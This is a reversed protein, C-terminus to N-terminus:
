IANKWYEDWEDNARMERLSLMYSANDTKWWAGPIKLREQVVASNASEIEGSGIPLNAAKAGMYDFQGSRNRLYRHCDESPNSEKGKKGNRWPELEVMIAEIEGAKLRKKQADVWAKQVKDDGNKVCDKAAKALYECTHYYDVLYSGQDAFVRQAQSEIWTAGDSVCHIESQRNLGSKIACSLWQDGADDPEKMTLGYRKDVCGQEYVLCLKAEKWDLKRTKRKDGPAEEDVIVIPVYSGDMEGIFQRSQGICEQCHELSMESLEYICRAHNLAIARVSPEPMSVGYHEKLKRAAKKFSADSAFDVVRRQLTLSYDRCQVGSAESFPRLRHRPVM